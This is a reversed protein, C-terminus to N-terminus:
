FDSSSGKWLMELCTMCDFQPLLKEPYHNQVGVWNKCHFCLQSMQILFPIWTTDLNHMCDNKKKFFISGVARKPGLCNDFHITQM